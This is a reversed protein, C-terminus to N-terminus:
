RSVSSKTGLSPCTAVTSRPRLGEEKLGVAEALREEEVGGEVCPLVHEDVLDAVADVRVQDEARLVAPREPDVVVSVAACDGTPSASEVPQIVGHVVRGVGVPPAHPDALDGDDFAEAREEAEVCLVEAEEMGEVAVRLDPDGGLVQDSGSRHAEPRM